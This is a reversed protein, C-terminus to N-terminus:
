ENAQKLTEWQGEIEVDLIEISGGIRSRDRTAHSANPDKFWDEQVEDLPRSDNEIVYLETKTVKIVRKM